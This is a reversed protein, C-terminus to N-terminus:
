QKFQSIMYIVYNKVEEMLKDDKEFTFTNESFQNSALNNSQASATELQLYGVTLGTMKYQVGIVDKYFITKEGDTANGTIVSGATVKTSIVCRDRYVLMSRGRCGQLDYVIFNKEEQQKILERVRARESLRRQSDDEFKEKRKREEERRELEEAERREKEERARKEINIPEGPKATKIWEKIENRETISKSYWTNEDLLTNIAAMNCDSCIKQYDDSKYIAGCKPCIFIKM